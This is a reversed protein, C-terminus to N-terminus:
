AHLLAVIAVATTLCMTLATMITLAWRADRSYRATGWVAALGIPPVLLLLSGLVVPNEWWAASAAPAAKSVPVHAPFARVDSRPNRVHAHVDQTRIPRYVPLPLAPSALATSRDILGRLEDPMQMMMCQRLASRGGRAPGFDRPSERLWGDGILTPFSPPAADGRPTQRM